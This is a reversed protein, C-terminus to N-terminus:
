NGWTLLKDVSHLIGSVAAGNNNSRFQEESQHGCTLLLCDAGIESAVELDHLTDGILLVEGKKLGIRKILDKGQEVKSAAYINDLGVIHSFYKNLGFYEVMEELTHQSYASLISQGIQMEKIKEMVDTIGDFLRCSYKRKEYEDMWMKGVVEFSLRTFDFGARIYYNRVPITFINRYEALTISPLDHKVLLENILTLSLEVDDLITGNWDWIIHKYQKIM